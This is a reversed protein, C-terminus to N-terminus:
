LLMVLFLNETISSTVRPGLRLLSLYSSAPQNGTIGYNGRIKLNDIFSVNIINALDVGGGIAPFLGWKNDAGFRSSGEYRASATMFWTSNINLNVRGFFAILKNSNKYSNVSGLGNKFDLAHVWIILTFADTLFDGGEANFGEYTFDQYSYGGM